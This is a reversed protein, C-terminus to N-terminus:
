GTSTSAIRTGNPSLAPRLAAAPLTLNADTKSSLTFLHWTTDNGLGRYVISKGDKSWRAMTGFRSHVAESGDRRLVFITGSEVIKDGEIATDLPSVVILLLTGDPSWAISIEDLQSGGRGAWKRSEWLRRPSAGPTFLHAVLSSGKNDDNLTLYALTRGDAAWDMTYGSTVTLLQKTSGDRADFEVLKSGTLYTAATASRLAFAQISDSRVVLRPKNEGPTFLWLVGHDKYLLARATEGPTSTPHTYATPSGTSRPPRANPTADCAALVLVLVTGLTLRVAASLGSIKDLGKNLSLGQAGVIGRAAM